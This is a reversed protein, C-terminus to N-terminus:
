GRWLEDLPRLRDGPWCPATGDEAACRGTDGLRVEDPQLIAFQQRGTAVDFEGVPVRLCHFCKSSQGRRDTTVIVVSCLLM